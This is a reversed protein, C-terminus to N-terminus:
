QPPAALETASLFGDRNVDQRQFRAALRANHQSRTIPRGTGGPQEAPVLIGDGDADMADFAYTMWALYEELSVRGDGDADMRQLYDGTTEVRSQAPAPTSFAAVAVLGTVLLSATLVRLPPRGAATM